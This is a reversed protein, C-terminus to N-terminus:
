LCNSHKLLSALSQAYQKRLPLAGSLGREISSIGFQPIDPLKWDTGELVNSLRRKIPEASCLRLLPIATDLLESPPRTGTRDKGILFMRAAIFIAFDYTGREYIPFTDLLAHFPEFISISRQPVKPQVLRRIAHIYPPLKARDKSKNYEFFGRSLTRAVAHERLLVKQVEENIQLGAIAQVTDFIVTSDASTTLLWILGEAKLHDDSPPEADQKDKRTCEKLARFLIFLPTNLPSDKHFLPLLTFTVYFIAMLIVLVLISARIAVLDDHLYFILGLCFFSLSGHIILPIMKLLDKIKLRRIDNFRRQRAGAAAWIEGDTDIINMIWGKAVTAIFASMVSLILSTFWFGNVLDFSSIRPTRGRVDILFATLIASFLTAQHLIWSHINM